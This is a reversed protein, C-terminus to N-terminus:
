VSIFALKECLIIGRLLVLIVGGWLYLELRVMLIVFKRGFVAMGDANCDLFDSSARMKVYFTDMVHIRRAQELLARSGCNCLGPIDCFVRVNERGFVLSKVSNLHALCDPSPSDVTRPALAITDRAM